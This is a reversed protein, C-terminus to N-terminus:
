SMLLRCKNNGYNTQYTPQLDLLRKKSPAYGIFIGVDTKNKLKGLDESDNTPYCLTGFVHLYSLDPKKDHLLEYPTKGHRLRILSCNQTYCATVVAEAWLFLPANAYILMTRAAEVLTWNRREGVGYQQPSRTMSTEHSIVVDEYYSRLTQNFNKTGNDTCINRVTANLCVQIMKLFKIIFEPVEDKSRLFKVWTFRCYNDIIVLIYKKGNISKVRFPGCLDMHLLYLEEQNTDKSKPKHSQKKRKGLLCASCLHDKKFKLKPLGRILGQKALQNITGFNLHSLRRHWLWSKTKSAELDSDCFQGVSFLNNGLGEVYYVRSITLNRIQYDGYGMIKAIQDNGFVSYNPCGTPKWIHKKNKHKAPTSKSRVNVDHVYDLVCKDHNADFLCENYIACVSKSNANLMSQMVYANCKTKAVRNKKNKRSKVSWSQDEVKNTKK